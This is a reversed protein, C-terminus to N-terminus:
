TNRAALGQRSFRFDPVDLQAAGLNTQECAAWLAISVPNSSATAVAAVDIRERPELAAEYLLLPRGSLAECVEVTVLLSAGNASKNEFRGQMHHRGALKISPLVIGQLSENEPYLSFIRRAGDRRVGLHETEILLGEHEILIDDVKLPSACAELDPAHDGTLRGCIDLFTLREDLSWGMRRLQAQRPRAELSLDDRTSKLVEVFSPVAMSPFAARDVLLAAAAEPDNLLLDHQLVVLREDLNGVAATTAREAEAWLQVHEIFPAQPMRRLRAGVFDVPERACLVFVADSRRAALDILDELVSYAARDHKAFWVMQRNRKTSSIASAGDVGVAEVGLASAIAAAAVTVGADILGVVVVDRNRSQVPSTVSTRSNM